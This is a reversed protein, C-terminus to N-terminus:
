GFADACRMLLQVRASSLTCVESGGSEALTLDGFSLMDDKDLEDARTTHSDDSRNGVASVGHKIELLAPAMLPHSTQSNTAHAITLADELQRIRNSM